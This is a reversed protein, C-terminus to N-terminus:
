ATKESSGGLDLGREGLQRNLLLLAGKDDGVMRILSVTEDMIKEEEVQEDLFWKLHSQTAYDKLELALSYLNNIATTNAQELDLARQFVASVSDFEAQPQDVAKLQVRGGRDLQYRFLRMAHELEEARQILMWHAFGSLNQSEFYASMALYYYASALEHNIQDNIAAEVKPDLM